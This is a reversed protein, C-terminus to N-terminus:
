KIWDEWLFFRNATITDIIDMIWAVIDLFINLLLPVLKVGGVIDNILRYIWPIIPLFIALLIKVIQPLGDLAKNFEM